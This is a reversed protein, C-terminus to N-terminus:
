ETEINIAFRTVGARKVLDILEVVRAHSVERDAAVVARVERDARRASAIAARVDDESAARGDLYLAGQKTLTLALTTTVDEGSAARPLEVPITRAALEEAMQRRTQRVLAPVAIAAVLGLVFVTVLVTILVIAIAPVGRKPPPPQPTPGSSM